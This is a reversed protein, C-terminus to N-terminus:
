INRQPLIINRNFIDWYIKLHVNKLEFHATSCEIKIILIRSKSTVHKLNAASTALGKQIEYFRLSTDFARLITYAYFAFM